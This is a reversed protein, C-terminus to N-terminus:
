DNHRIHARYFCLKRLRPDSAETRLARRFCHGPALVTFSNLRRRLTCKAVRRESRRPRLMLRSTVVM